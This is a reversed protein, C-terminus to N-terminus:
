RSELIATKDIWTTILNVLHKPNIPKTCYDDMGAELCKTADHTTANATLAIIPMRVSHRPFPSGDTLWTQEIERIRGTAQYGDLEPMQCDMLILHYPSQLFAEVAEIGNNTLTVSFGVKSLMERVVIQNIKNDEAVLVHVNCGLSTSMISSSAVGASGLGGGGSWSASSDGRSENQGNEGDSQTPSAVFASPFLSAITENLTTVHVPKSVIHTEIPQTEEPTTHRIHSEMAEALPVLLIAKPPEHLAAAECAELFVAGSEGAVKENVIVLPFPTKADDAAKLTNLADRCTACALANMGWAQLQRVLAGSLLTNDVVILARKGALKTSHCTRLRQDSVPLCPLPLVFTFVSGEGETSRVSLSGNMLEVLM